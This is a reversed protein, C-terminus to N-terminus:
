LLFLILALSDFKSALSLYSLPSYHMDTFASNIKYNGTPGLGQFSLELQNPGSTLSSPIRSVYHNYLTM